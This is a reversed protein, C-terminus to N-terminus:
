FLIKDKESKPRDLSENEDIQDGMTDLHSEPDNM